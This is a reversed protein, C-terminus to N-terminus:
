TSGGSGRPRRPAFQRCKEEAAKFEASDPDLGRFSDIRIRGDAQPDPFEPVGNARMCKAFERM